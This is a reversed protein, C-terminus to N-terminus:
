GISDMSSYWDEFAIFNFASLSDIADQAAAPLAFALYGVGRTVSVRCLLPNKKRLIVSIEPALRTDGVDIRFFIYGGVDDSVWVHSENIPFM